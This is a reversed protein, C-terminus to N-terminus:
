HVYFLLSRILCLTVSVIMSDKPRHSETRNLSGHGHIMDICIKTVTPIVEYRSNETNM